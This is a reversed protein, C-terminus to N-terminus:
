TARPSCRWWRGRRWCASCPSARPRSCCCAPSRAPSAARGRPAQGRALMKSYTPIFAASLAQEGLLNQLLNPLRMATGYVDAFAGVGLFRAM